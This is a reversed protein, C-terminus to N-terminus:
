RAPVAAQREIVELAEAESVARLDHFGGRDFDRVLAPDEIWRRQDADFCEFYRNPLADQGRIVLQEGLFDSIYYTHQM